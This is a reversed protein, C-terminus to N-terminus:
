PTFADANSNAFCNPSFRAVTPAPALKGKGPTVGVGIGVGVGGIGFNVGAAISDRNPVEPYPVFAEANSNALCYPNSRAVTPEPAFKGNSPTVGGAGSGDFSGDHAVGVFANIAAPRTDLMALAFSVAGVAAGNVIAGYTGGDPLGNAFM